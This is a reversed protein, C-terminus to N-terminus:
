VKSEFPCNESNGGCPIIDSPVGLKEIGPRTCVPIMEVEVGESGVSRFYPTEEKYHICNTM